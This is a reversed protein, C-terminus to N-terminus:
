AVAKSCLNCIRWLTHECEAPVPTPYIIRRPGTNTKWWGCSNHAPEVEAKEGAIILPMTQYKQEASM